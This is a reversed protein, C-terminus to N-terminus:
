VVLEDLPSVTPPRSGGQSQAPAPPDIPDSTLSALLAVRALEPLSRCGTRMMISARHNEVTRQSIGLLAAITKSPRGALVLDMIQRQRMTLNAMPHDAAPKEASPAYPVACRGTARALADKDFLFTVVLGDLRRMRTRCPQVRRIAPVGSQCMVEREITECRRLVARADELLHAHGGTSRTDDDWRDPEWAQLPVLSSLNPTAFRLRLDSGLVAMAVDTGITITSLGIPPKHQQLM